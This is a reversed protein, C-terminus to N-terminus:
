RHPLAAQFPDVSQLYRSGLSAELRSNQKRAEWAGFVIGLMLLLSVYSYAVKPRSLLVAVLRAMSPWFGPQDPQETQGIRLWVQEQFRPPLPEHIVWELLLKDLNADKEPQQSSTNM